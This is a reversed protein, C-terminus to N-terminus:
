QLVKKGDKIVIQGKRTNWPTMRGLLDYVKDSISAPRAMPTTIGTEMEETVDDVVFKSGFSKTTIRFYRDKRIGQLDITQQAGNSTTLVLNIFYDESKISFEKYYWRDEGITKRTSVQRGPWNGNLQTNNKDWVYMSVASWGKPLSVNITINHPQFPEITYYRAITGVVKGDMLLGMTLTCSGDLNLTEGSKIQASKTTPASGDTTYVIPCSTNRTLATLKVQIPAYYKGSPKNAFVTNNWRSLYYRYGKGSLVLVYDNSSPKYGDPNSGVVCILNAYKGYTEVAYYSNDTWKETFGSTNTIGAQKRVAIMRKLDDKCAAWHRWFICPTGPMALMYANAALTDRWIPDQDSNSRKETDHNEVFNVAWRKFYDQRSLPKEDYALYRWNNNNIADRMRYRFQFDFASSTPQGDWQTNKIWEGIEWSSSWYEGVSFQPRATSNYDGIHWPHFGKVMDYRFGVYGLDELLYKLYAKVCRQVNGGQHDLDRCGSWDEGTDNNNSLQQGYKDAWAKTAGGDDNRCIDTGYMQYTEGNYTEAPFDIWSGGSGINARHNVVVDAITGIGREKFARILSRLQGESGFSSHHTFYYVPTYGMQNGDTNCYGSQPLWVLDISPALDDAMDQLASWSTEKYSDWYFGQLMVGPYDAPWGQALINSTLLLSFVLSFFRRM